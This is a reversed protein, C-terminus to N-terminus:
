NLTHIHNGKGAPKVAFARVSHVHGNDRSTEGNGNKDLSYSHTHGQNQSTRGNRKKKKPGSTNSIKKLTAM